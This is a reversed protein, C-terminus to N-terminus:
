QVIDECHILTKPIKGKKKKKFAEQVKSRLTFTKSTKENQNSKTFKQSSYQM